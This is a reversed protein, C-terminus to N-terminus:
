LIAPLAAALQRAVFPPLEIETLRWQTLAFRLRIAAYQEPDTTESVRIEVEQPSVPRMRDLLDLIRGPDLSGLAPLNAVSAVKSASVDGRQLFKALSEPTLLNKLMVEVVSNGFTTALAHEFPKITRNQGIRDLYAGVIQNALSSQVRGLDVHSVIADQDGSRVAQVLAALSVVASGFYLGIAVVVAIVTGIAWRM